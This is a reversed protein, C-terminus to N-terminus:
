EIVKEKFFFQPMFDLCEQRKYETLPRNTWKFSDSMRGDYEKQIFMPKNFTYVNFYKQMEAFPVDMPLPMVYGCYYTTRQCMGVYQDSLYLIAHSALMNYIQLLQSYGPVQKYKLFFGHHGNMRGWASNGLYLADAHDPVEVIPVFANPDCDDEMVIFPAKVQSLAHNQSKSLGVRGNQKDEIGKIRTVNKFGLEALMSEMHNRKKVDKDMNIYFVPIQRLDLIM